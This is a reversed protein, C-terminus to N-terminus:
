RGGGMGGPAGGGGGMSMGGGGGGMGMGGGMSMGGGMNMGSDASSTTGMRYIEDGEKLGSLIEAYEDNSLGLEVEVAKYGDPAEPTMDRDKGDANPMNGAPAEGKKDTDNKKNDDKKEQKEKDKDDEGTKSDDKVFVYSKGMVTKVDGVPVMLTDESSAFVVTADINMSPRLNGPEDVVVEAEYVTVGNTSTGEVSVNTITGYYLEGDLADCTVKVKQGVEVKSIDLEDVSLVFKLKSIDAVVMLTQTNSNRDITDGAKKEKTLVTGNIPSTISYDDLTDQSEQLSLSSSKYQISSNKISNTVSDSTLTFLTDGKNVYDGNSVYVKSVKGAVQASVTETDECRLTGSGPSIMGNIEGGVTLGATLAGPNTLKITVNYLTAGDAQATPNADIHTVTGNIRSLHVSSSVTATDGIHISGIQSSNFPLDVEMSYTNDITALVTNNQVEKGAKISVNSVVGSCPATVTLKEAEELASNYSNRSQELNLQQKEISISASSKDFEYLLDGEKVEDGVDFPSSIIDGSVLAIIEYREYPEVVASGTITEEVDGREVIDTEPMGPMKDDKGKGASVAIITIVAIVAAAAAGIIILKKKPMEKLKAPNLRQPLEKLKETMGAINM